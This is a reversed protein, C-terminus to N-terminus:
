RPSVSLWTEITAENVAGAIANLYDPDTGLPLVFPGALM